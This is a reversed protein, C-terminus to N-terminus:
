VRVYARVSREDQDPVEKKLFERATKYGGALYYPPESDIIEGLAEYREDWGEVEEDRAARYRAIAENWRAKLAADVVVGTQGKRQRISDAKAGDHRRPESAFM